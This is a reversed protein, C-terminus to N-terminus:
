ATPKDPAAIVANFDVLFRGIYSELLDKLRPESESQLIVGAHHEKHLRLAIESDTYASLDPEQQRALSIVSGAFTRKTSPLHYEVGKALAVEIRAWERWPNIGTAFELTEAIYAGGVRAATELFYFRGDATAKIFETHTVGADLQLAQLLPMHVAELACADASTVDLTRTSFIGGKHMTEMPPKSYQFPQSFLLKGGWTIGEAHFVKGAVFRELVYHSQLDGLADLVPWLEDPSQIPKIGIASANTRPKLLWPGPVDRMFARLDGYHFVSKFEPVAIGAARAQTRMALKDRFFRTGTEGMGPLRMHERTLASIELDFEDLPVLRDIPRDRALYSITNLVQGPTMDEPMTLFETLIAKPWDADHLKNVTLLRIDCGEAACTRLFEQGKEYTSIAFISPREGSSSM